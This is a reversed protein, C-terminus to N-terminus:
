SVDDPLAPKDSINWISILLSPTNSYLNDAASTSQWKVRGWDSRTRLAALFSIVAQSAPRHGVEHHEQRRSLNSNKKCHHEPSFAAPRRCDLRCTDRKPASQDGSSLPSAPDLAEQELHRVNEGKSLWEALGAVASDSAAISKLTAHKMSSPWRCVARAQAGIRIHPRWRRASLLPELETLGM